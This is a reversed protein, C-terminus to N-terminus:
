DSVLVRNLRKCDSALGMAGAVFCNVVLLDEARIREYRSDLGFWKIFAHLLDLSAEELELTDLVESLDPLYSRSNSADAQQLELEDMVKEQVNSIFFPNTQVHFTIGRQVAQVFETRTIKGDQDKELM